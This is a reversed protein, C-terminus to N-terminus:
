SFVDAQRDSFIGVTVFGYLQTPTPGTLFTRARRSM